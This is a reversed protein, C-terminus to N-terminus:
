YWKVRFRELVQTSVDSTELNYCFSFNDIVIAIFLNMVTYTAICYFSIFYFIAGYQSGCDNPLYMGDIDTRAYPTCFPEEVQCDKMLLNWNEGTIVRFLLMMANGFYRFNAHQGIGHDTGFKVNGFIQMGIIAYLFFLLFLLTAVNMMAPLSILLTTVMLRIGQVRKIVRFVLLLRLPRCCYLSCSLLLSRLCIVSTSACVSIFCSLSMFHLVSPSLLNFLQLPLLPCMCRYFCCHLSTLCSNLSIVALVSQAVSTWLCHRVSFCTCAYLSLYLLFSSVCLLPSHFHCYSFHCLPFRLSSLRADSGGSSLQILAVILCATVIGFDFINWNDSFFAEPFLAVLRMVIEITFIWVFILNLLELLDSYDQSMHYYETAMLLSNILICGIISYEFWRNTTTRFCFARLANQPCTLPPPNDHTMVALMNDKVLVQQETLLGRGSM